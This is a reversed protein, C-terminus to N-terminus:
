KRRISKLAGYQPYFELLLGENTIVDVPIKKVEGLQPVITRFSIVEEKGKLLKLEGVAPVRYYIASGTTEGAVPVSAPVVVDDVKLMYVQGAVNKVDTIGEQESFRFAVVAEGAKQPTCQIIRKVEHVVKKGMFLSLYNKEMRDFEKLIIELSKGDPVSNDASLLKVRESRIRYIESVAEKINDAETKPVYRVIPDWIKKMVGDIEQFTYNTDLVEKLHNYTNLKMINIVEKPMRDDALYTFDANEDFVGGQGASVGALFGEASLSLLLPSYDGSASVSYVAKEDPLYQPKVDVEKVSWRQFAETIEPRMGLEKEASNRYPGPIYSECELIVEVNYTVKPLCYNVNVLTTLEKKKQAGAALSSAVVLLMVLINKM